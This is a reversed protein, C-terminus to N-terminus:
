FSNLIYSIEILIVQTFILCNNYIYFIKGGSPIIDYASTTAMEIDTSYSQPKGFADQSKQTEVTAYFNENPEVVERFIFYHKFLQDQNFVVYIWSNIDYRYSPDVLQPFMKRLNGDPVALARQFCIKSYSFRGIFYGLFGFGIVAPRAGWKAHNLYGARASVLACAGFAISM